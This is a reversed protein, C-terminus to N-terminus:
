FPLEDWEQEEFGESDKKREQGNGEEPAGQNLRSQRLEEEKRDIEAQEEWTIGYPVGGDTYGVIYAFYENQEILTETRKPTRDRKKKRSMEANNKKREAMRLM